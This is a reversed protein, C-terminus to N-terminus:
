HWRRWKGWSNYEIVYGTARVGWSGDVLRLDGHITFGSYGSEPLVVDEPFEARAHFLKRTDQFAHRFAVRVQGTTQCADAVPEACICAPPWSAGEGNLVSVSCCVQSGTQKRLDRLKPAIVARLMAAVLEPEPCFEDCHPEDHKVM